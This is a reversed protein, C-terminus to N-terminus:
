SRPWWAPPTGGSLHANARASRKAEITITLTAAVDDLEYANVAQSIWYRSQPRMEHVMRAMRMALEDDELPQRSLPLQLQPNTAM